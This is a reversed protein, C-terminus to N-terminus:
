RISETTYRWLRITESWHSPSLGAKMKLHALFDRPDPLSEWVSPLFTGRHFGDELVLGDVGPRLKALLEEESGFLLPEPSNLVSIHIEIRPLDASRVGPSRPDHFAASFANGAVDAVLARRPELTGICGLLDGEIRLTVFTARAVRLEAPFDDLDVELPEGTGVGHAISAAAVDLLIRRGEPSFSRSAETSSM